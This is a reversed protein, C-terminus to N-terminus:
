PSPILAVGSILTPTWTPVGDNLVNVDSGLSIATLVTALMNKGGPDNVTDIEVRARESYPPESDALQIVLRVTGDARPNLQEVKCTYWANAANALSAFVFCFLFVSVTVTLIKSKM